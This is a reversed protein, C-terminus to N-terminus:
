IVAVTGIDADVLLILTVLEMLVAVVVLLKVTVALLIGTIICNEGTAPGGLVRTVMCPKLKVPAVSTLKLPVFALKVTFEGVWIVAVTGIPANCPGILTVLALPM